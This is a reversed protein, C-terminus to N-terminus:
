RAVVPPIAFRVHASWGVPAAIAVRCPGMLRRPDPAIVSALLWRCMGSNGGASTGARDAPHLRGAHGTPLNKEAEAVAGSKVNRWNRQSM